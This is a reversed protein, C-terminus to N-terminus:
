NFLTLFAGARPSVPRVGRPSVPRVGRPSVPRVGRPTPPPPRRRQTQRARRPAGKARSLATTGGRAARPPASVANSSTRTSPRRPAAATKAEWAPRRRDLHVLLPGRRGAAGRVDGGDQHATEVQTSRSMQDVYSVCRPGFGSSHSSGSQASGPFPEARGAAGVLAGGGGSAHCAGDRLVCAMGAPM